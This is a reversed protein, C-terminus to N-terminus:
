LTLELSWGLDKIVQVVDDVNNILFHKIKIKGSITPSTKVEIVLPQKIKRINEALQTEQKLRYLIEESTTINIGNFPNLWDYPPLQNDVPKEMLIDINKNINKGTFNIILEGDPSVNWRAITITGTSFETIIESSEQSLKNFRYSIKDLQQYLEEMVNSEKTSPFERTKSQQITTIEASTAPSLPESIIETPEETITTGVTVTPTTTELKQEKQQKKEEIVALKEQVRQQTPSLSHIVQKVDHQINQIKQKTLPFGEGTLAEDIMLDIIEQYKFDPTTIKSSDLEKIALIEMSAQRLAQQVHLIEKRASLLPEQAFLEAVHEAPKKGQYMPEAKEILSLIKTLNKDATILAQIANELHEQEQQKLSHELTIEQYSQREEIFESTRPGIKMLQSQHQTLLSRLKPLENKIKKIRRKKENLRDLQRIINLREQKVEKEKALAALYERQEKEKLQQLDGRFMAKVSKWSLGELEKVDLEERARIRVIRQIEKEIAALDRRLKQIQHDITKEEALMVEYERIKEEIKSIDGSVSTIEMTPTASTHPRSISTTPISKRPVRRTPMRARAGCQSCFKAGARLESGCNM